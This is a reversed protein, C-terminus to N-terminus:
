EDLVEMLLGLETLAEMVKPIAGSKVVVTTPSLVEGLFKSAKSKRMEELIEPKSVKLIVQTQVRAETGHVEWRKLAKLLSPPIGAETHKTLLALLHEVKLGQEKAKSLSRTSIRYRYVDEKSEEWECFRSVQYRVVRPASQPISIRGSSSVAIKGREEKEGQFTVIRFATPESPGDAISLDVQGLSHLIDTIFFKVLAGDVQEWSSFGRLYQGDSKRRIFWSDYDGAPRQFDAYKQKIDRIFAGLSWWKGEPVADLLNLLFERTEQPNNKWEGECIITPLLRLENFSTSELWAGQLMKLAESRPCELFTKVAEAQPVSDKILDATTLLAALRPESPDRLMRSFYDSRGMRLAALYTTADDLISDNALLERGREGPSAPRGLADSPAVVEPLSAPKVPTLAKEKPEEELINYLLELLDDPIYAFEQPGKETDFFARALLGRYFLTEATSSPKLHPRERDRKGAGMERIDGYKRAFTAWPIRGEEDLLARIASRAQPSLSDILETALEADLLSASLEERADDATISDLELGWFEAVIRLHGIDQKLLSQLLDPM